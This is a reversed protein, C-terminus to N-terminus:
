NLNFMARLLQILMRHLAIKLEFALDNKKAQCREIGAAATVSDPELQLLKRYQTIASDYDRCSFELLSALQTRAKVSDPQIAVLRSLEAMAGQYDGTMETVEALEYAWPLKGPARRIASELLARAGTFDGRKRKLQYSLYLLEPDDPAESLLHAIEGSAETLQDSSVLADALAMHASHSSPERSVALRAYELGLEYNLSEVYLRSLEVLPETLQQTLTLVFNYEAIAQSDLGMSHYLSALEIHVQPDRPYDKLLKDMLARANGFSGSRSLRRVELLAAQRWRSDHASSAGLQASLVGTNGSLSLALSFALSIFQHLRM